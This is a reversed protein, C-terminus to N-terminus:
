DRSPYILDPATPSTVGYKKKLALSGFISDADCWKLSTFTEHVGSVLLLSLSNFFLRADLDGASDFYLPMAGDGLPDGFREEATEAFLDLVHAGYPENQRQEANNRLYSAPANVLDRDAIFRFECGYEQLIFPLFSVEYQRGTVLDAANWYSTGIPNLVLYGLNTSDVTYYIKSVGTVLDKIKVYRGIHTCSVTLDGMNLINLGMAQAEFTAFKVWEDFAGLLFEFVCGLTGRAGYMGAIVAKRWAEESIFQPRTFGYYDALRNFANGQAKNLLTENRVEDIKSITFM